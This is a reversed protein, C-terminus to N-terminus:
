CIISSRPPCFCAIHESKINHNQFSNDVSPLSLSHYFEAVRGLSSIKFVNALKKLINSMGCRM